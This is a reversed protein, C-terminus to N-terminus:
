QHSILHRSMWSRARCSLTSEHNVPPQEFYLGANRFHGEASGQRSGVAKVCSKCLGRTEKSSAKHSKRQSKVHTKTGGFFEGIPNTRPTYPALFNVKVGADKCM